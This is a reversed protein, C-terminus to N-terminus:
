QNCRMAWDVHTAATLATINFALSDHAAIATSTWDSTTASQVLTGSSLSVGSTSISNGVVPRATGGTAVRWTKITVTEAVDSDISFGAITCAFPVDPVYCTKNTIASGAGDFTCGISHAKINAAVTPNPYTGTLDGGATTGSDVLTQVTGGNKKLTVHDSSSFSLCDTSAAVTGCPDAGNAGTLAFVGSNTTSLAKRYTNSASCFWLDFNTTDLYFNLAAVCSGAPAGAGTKWVAVAPDLQGLAILGSLSSFPVTGQFNL